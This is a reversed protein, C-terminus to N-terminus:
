IYTHSQLSTELNQHLALSIAHLNHLCYPISKLGFCQLTKHSWWTCLFLSSSISSSLCPHPHHISPSISITCSRSTPFSFQIPIWLLLLFAYLVNSNCIILTSEKNTLLPLRIWKRSSGCVHTFIEAIQM